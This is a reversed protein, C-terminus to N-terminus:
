YKFSSNGIYERLISAPPVPTSPTPLFYALFELLRRATAYEPDYPKVEALLPEALPKLVALEYDLASNFAIDAHQQTPFIWTKEGHRVSPWMRLTTLADHGRFQYDRVLRRLLRNDTTSIRNHRDLNLQGLASIYIKFKRQGPLADSLRPNLAHIGELILIHEPSLQLADGRSERRGTEFNFWPLDVKEGRDLRRLDENLLPLDIAELHEFDYDGNPHRPTHDRDVFYDDISITRPQLGNVRLQIMLRKALTTKGASSPGAILIFKVQDRHEYVQDAIRAIKKEHLAEAIRIFEDIQRGAILENLEGVTTVGLIRGWRKHERFIAFLHPQPAFPPMNPANDREPFLIVFGPPYPYIKFYRLMGTRPAMVGHALDSFEGCSYMVIVPPNRFRLLNYKDRQGQQEFHRVAEAFSLKSRVIPLDERALAGLRTEVAALQDPSIGVEGNRQFTCYLGTGMSHEVRFEADPYLERFVKAFLFSVSRRYVRDGHHNEMTIPEVDCDVELSFSMSVVDNNVLAGLYGLGNPAAAEPVVQNVRTGVVVERILGGPLTVRIMPQQNGTM